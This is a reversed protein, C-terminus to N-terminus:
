SARVHAPLFTKGDTHCSCSYSDPPVPLLGLGDGPLDTARRQNCFRSPQGKYRGGQHTDGHSSLCRRKGTATRSAPSPAAALAPCAPHAIEQASLLLPVREVRGRCLDQMPCPQMHSTRPHHQPSAPCLYLLM